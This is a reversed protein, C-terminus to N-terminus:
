ANRGLYCRTQDYLTAHERPGIYGAASSCRASPPRGRRVARYVVCVDVVASWMM